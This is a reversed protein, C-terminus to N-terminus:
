ARGRIRVLADGNADAVDVVPGLFAELVQINTRSHSSLTGTRYRGGAGLAMPLLLQDALHESVPVDSRLWAKAARCATAAVREAPIGQAGFSTIVETAHEYTIRLVLANGPGRSETREDVHLVRRPWGLRRQVVRLEREAIDVPLRGVLARAEVELQDGRGVVELPTAREVPDVRVRLEGGGVPFFGAREMVVDV